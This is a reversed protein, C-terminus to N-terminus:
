WNHIGFFDCIYLFMDLHVFFDVIGGLFFVRKPKVWKCGELMPDLSDKELAPGAGTLRDVPRGTYRHVTSQKLENTRDWTMWVEAPTTIWAGTKLREVQRLDNLGWCIYHNMAFFQQNPKQHFFLNCFYTRSNSRRGLNSRSFVSVM